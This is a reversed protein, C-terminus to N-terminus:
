RCAASVLPRGRCRDSRERPRGLLSRVTRRGQLEALSVVTGQQLVAFRDCRVPVGDDQLQCPERRCLHVRCPGGSCRGTNRLLRECARNTSEVVGGINLTMGDRDIHSSGAQCSVRALGQPLALPVHPERGGTFTKLEKLAATPVERQALLRTCRRAASM